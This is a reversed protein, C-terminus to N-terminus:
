KARIRELIGNTISAIQNRKEQNERLEKGDINSLKEQMIKATAELIPDATINMDELLVAMERVADLTPERLLAGNSQGEKYTIVQYALNSLVQEAREYLKSTAERFMTNNENVLKNRLEEMDHSNVHELLWNGADPVPTFTVTYDFYDGIDKPNPFDEARFAMGLRRPATRVIDPYLRKFTKVEELFSDRISSQEFAYEDYLRTSLLQVGKQNFPLTLHEHRMRGLTALRKIPILYESPVLNKFVRMTRHQANHDVEAKVAVARDTASAQWTRISLSAFMAKDSLSSM